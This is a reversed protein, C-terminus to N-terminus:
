KKKRYKDIDLNERSVKIKANQVKVKKGGDLFIIRDGRLEDNDQVVKPSGDFVYENKALNIKLKESTAWKSFDSVKVGGDLDISELIDTTGNYRLKADPGSIRMGDLDIIVNGSFHVSNDEGSLTVKESIVTMKRDKTVSKRAKVDREILVVGKALDAFMEEGRIFMSQGHIDRPASVEVASISKLTRNESNYDVSETKFLYGNSSKTVVGGNVIMNKTETGVSGTLGTVEFSVGSSTFFNARVKELKLDGQDKFGVAKDATLEWEKTENKSVIVKVGEMQQEIDGRRDPLQSVASSVQQVKKEKIDSPSILILEVILVVFLFGLLYQGIKKM